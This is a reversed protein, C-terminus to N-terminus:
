SLVILGQGVIGLSWEDRTYTGTGEVLIEEKIYAPMKFSFLLGAENDVNLILQRISM